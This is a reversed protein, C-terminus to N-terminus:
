LIINLDSILPTITKFAFGRYVQTPLKMLLFSFTQAKCINLFLAYSGAWCLFQHLVRCPAARLTVWGTSLRLSVGPSSGPWRHVEGLMRPDLFSKGHPLCPDVLPSTSQWLGQNGRCGLATLLSTCFTKGRCPKAVELEANDRHAKGPEM